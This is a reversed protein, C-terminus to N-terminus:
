APTVGPRIMASRVSYREAAHRVPVLRLDRTETGPLDGIGAAGCACGASTNVSAGCTLTASWPSRTTVAGLDPHREHPIRTRYDTAGRQRSPTEATAVGDSADSRIASELSAADPSAQSGANVSTTTSAHDRPPDALERLAIADVVAIATRQTKAVTEAVVGVVPHALKTLYEPSVGARSLSNGVKVPTQALSPVETAEILRSPMELAPEDTRLQEPVLSQDDEVPDLQASPAPVGDATDAQASVAGALWGAATAAM